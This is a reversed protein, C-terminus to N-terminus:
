DKVGNNEHEGADNMILVVVTAGWNPGDNYFSLVRPDKELIGLVWEKKKSLGKGHVIRVKRFRKEAAQRLFEKVAIGTDKFHIHHLDIEEGFDIMTIGDDDQMM